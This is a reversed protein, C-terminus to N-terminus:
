GRGFYPKGNSLHRKIKYPKIEEFAKEAEKFTFYKFGYHQANEKSRVHHFEKVPVVVFLEEQYRYLCKLEHEVYDGAETRLAFIEDKRVYIDSDTLNAWEEKSLPEYETLSPNYPSYTTKSELEEFLETYNFVCEEDVVDIFKGSISKYSVFKEWNDEYYFFHRKEKPNLQNNEYYDFKGLYILHHNHKNKYTAGIILDKALIKKKAYIQENFKQIKIYDPSCIPILWMEGRDFCYVFEGELGKGKISNTYELIYILNAVTIEVEFDRPDYIRIYAQRHNLGSAYDGAKKNLVFGSTPENSIKLPEINKDRWFNWSKEKRINKNEDEYIIYALKGTYTNNRNQFGVHLQKPIFINEKM